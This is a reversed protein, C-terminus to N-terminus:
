RLYRAVVSYNPDFVKEDTLDLRMVSVEGFRPHQKKPKYIEFCLKKFYPVMHANCDVYNWKGKRALAVKFCEATLLLPLIRGRERKVVMLRTSYSVREPYYEGADEMEYFEKYFGPDGDACVNIRAVGIIDGSQYAAVNYAYQDQPDTITKESHEAYVDNRAMEEEYISYRFQYIEAAEKGPPYVRIDPM